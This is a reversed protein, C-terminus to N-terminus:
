RDPTASRMTAVHASCIPPMSTSTLLAPVLKARAEVVEGVLVPLALPLQVHHRGHPEHARGRGRIACRPPPRITLTQELAPLRGDSVL